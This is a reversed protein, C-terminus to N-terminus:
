KALLRVAGSQGLGNIPSPQASLFFGHGGEHAGAKQFTTAQWAPKKGDSHPFTGKWEGTTKTLKATFTKDTVPANTVINTPSINLNKNVTANLLGELFSLSANGDTANVAGLGPFVSTPPAAPPIIFKSGPMDLRLGQPWGTPYWQSKPQAPRFWFADTASSDTATQAPDLTVQAALLGLKSYLQAFLPCDNNKSLAAAATFKTNDALHLAFTVKGDTKVIMSGIGTGQPYLNAALIPTQTKAPLILNYRQQATGALSADAKLKSSYHARDATIGSVAGGTQTITGTIRATAGSMDLALAIVLSPKNKRLITLTPARSTGFRSAGQNTFLGSVTHKAGDLVLSGSFSGKNTVTATFLGVTGIGPTTGVEPLALGSFTGILTPVFPNAILNATLALNQQMFFTLKPLEKAADNVGTGTFDNATWGDFVFGSKPTATIAYPIGLFRQSTPMFGSTVTGSNAPGNVAVALPRVVRLTFSRKIVASLLGRTDVARVMITRLGPTVTLPLAYTVSKRDTSHTLQAPQYATGDLSIEVREIGQNDKASGTVNVVPGAAELILENAKPTLLTLTPKTTDFADIIRVTAPNVMGLSAGGTPASLTLTFTENPEKLAPDATIMVPVLKQTEGEAFNLVLGSVATFDAATATGPSSNVTVSVAGTSGVTRLVPIQATGVEELVSILPAGFALVGPDDGPDPAEPFDLPDAPDTGMMIEVGNDFGDEDFDEHALVDAVFHIADNPDADVIRLEETDPLTDGDSDNGTLGSTVSLTFARVEAALDEFLAHVNIEDASIRSLRLRSYSGRRNNTLERVGPTVPQNLDNVFLHRIRSGGTSSETFVYVFGGAVTVNQPLARAELPSVGTTVNVGTGFSSGTGAVATYTKLVGDATAALVRYGGADAYGALGGALGSALNSVPVLTTGDWRISRLQGSSNLFILAFDGGGAAGAGLLELSQLGDTEQGLFVASHFTGATSNFTQGFFQHIPESTSGIIMQTVLIVNSGSRAIQLSAAPGSLFVADQPATFNQGNTDSVAYRVYQRGLIDLPDVGFLPEAWAVIIRGDTLQHVAHAGIVEAETVIVGAEWSLSGDRPALRLQVKDTADNYLTTLFAEGSADVSHQLLTSSNRVLHPGEGTFQNTATDAPTTEVFLVDMPVLQMVTETGYQADIKLLNWKYKKESKSFPTELYANLKLNVSGQVRKVVPFDGFTNFTVTLSPAAPIGCEPGGLDLGMNAGLGFGLAAAKAQLGVGFRMCLDREIECGDEGADEDLENGGLFHRRRTRPDPDETSSFTLDQPRLTEWCYRDTFGIGATTSATTTLLGTKDLLILVPGAYPIKGTVATLKMKASVDANGGIEQRLRLDFPKSVDANAIFTTSIGGGARTIKVDAGLKKVIGPVYKPKDFKEQTLTSLMNMTLARDEGKSAIEMTSSLNAGILGPALSALGRAPTKQGVEVGTEVSYTYNIFGTKKGSKEEEEITATFEPIPIFSGIPVYENIEAQTAGIGAAVGLLDFVNGLWKPIAIGTLRGPDTPTIDFLIVGVAGTRSIAILAPKFDGAPLEWLPIKGTIKLRDAATGPEIMEAKSLYIRHEVDDGPNEKGRMIDRLFAHVLHPASVSPIVVPTSTGQLGTKEFKRQDVLYVEDLLDTFNLNEAATPSGDPQDFGPRTFSVNKVSVEATWTATLAERASYLEFVSAGGSRTVGPLFGGARDIEETGTVFEPGIIPVLEAQVQHTLVGSIDTLATVDLRQRFPMFGPLDVELFYTRLKQGTISAVGQANTRVTAPNFSDGVANGMGDLARVVADPLVSGDSSNTVTTIISIASEIVATVRVKPRTGTSEVFWSSDALIFNDTPDDVVSLAEMLGAITQPSSQTTVPTGSITLKAGAASSRLTAAPQAILEVDYITQPYGTTPTASPGGFFVTGGNPVTHIITSDFTPTVYVQAGPPVKQNFPVVFVGVAHGPAEFFGLLSRGAPRYEFVDPNSSVLEWQFATIQIDESVEQAEAQRYAVGLPITNGLGQAQVANLLTLSPAKGPSPYDHLLLSAPATGTFAHDPDSLDWTYSGPPLDKFLSFVHRAKEPSGLIVERDARFPASLAGAPGQLVAEGGTAALHRYPATFTDLFQGLFIAQSATPGTTNVSLNVFYREERLYLHVLPDDGGNVALGLGGAIGPYNSFLDRSAPWEEFEPWAGGIREGIQRGGAESRVEYEYREGYHGNLGPAEVAYVGPKLFLEYFGDADTTVSVPAFDGFLDLNAPQHFILMQNPMPTYFPKPTNFRSTDEGPVEAKQATWLRGRVRERKPQLTIEQVTKFLTFPPLVVPEPGRPHIEVYEEQLVPFSISNTNRYGHADEWALGGGLVGRLTVKYRGPKLYGELFYTSNACTTTNFEHIGRRVVGETSSGELGQLIVEFQDFDTGHLRDGDAQPFGFLETQCFNPLYGAFNYELVLEHPEAQVDLVQVAVPLLGSADPQVIVKKTFYGLAKVKAEYAVGPLMPFTVEGNAGTADNMPPLLPTEPDAPDMATLEVMMGKLLEPPAPPGFPDPSNKEFDYGQVRFTLSQPVPKLLVNLTHTQSLQHRTVPAGAPPASEWGALSGAGTNVEFEYHGATLGRIIATGNVNTATTVTRLPAGGTPGAYQRMVVPANKLELYSTTDAVQVYLDFNPVPALPTLSLNLTKRAADVVVVESKELYAPHTVTITYSAAATAEDTEYMGFPDSELSVDATPSGPTLRLEVAAGEVPANTVADRLQGRLQDARASTSFCLLFLCGAFLNLAHNKM